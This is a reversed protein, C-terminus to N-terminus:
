AAFSTGCGCTKTANPNSFVFGKGNLGGSYDLETGVLYILSKGDVLLKIGHQTYVKDGPREVTDFSLKYTLGSCGGGQVAVRLGHEQKGDKDSIRAVQAAAAESIHIAYKEQTTTEM